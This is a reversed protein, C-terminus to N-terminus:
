TCDRCSSAASRLGRAAGARMRSAEKAIAAAEERPTASAPIRRKPAYREVILAHTATLKHQQWRTYLSTFPDNWQWVVFTWLLVSVGLLLLINGVLRLARRLASSPTRVRAPEITEM